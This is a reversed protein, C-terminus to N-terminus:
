RVRSKGKGTKGRRSEDGAQGCRATEPIHSTLMLDTQPRTITTTQWPSGGMEPGAMEPGADANDPAPPIEMYYSADVMDPGEYPPVDEGRLYAAARKVAAVPKLYGTERCLIGSLADRIEAETPDPNEQLLARAALIMAPTAYGSQIAGTEVFAQQIPHLQGIETSLGEITELRHGVAQGTLLVDSSVLRGDLIIAAAGTEGSDSGFRVSFYGARRLTHLLTDTPLADIVQDRGNINLTLTM